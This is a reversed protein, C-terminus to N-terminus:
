IKMGEPGALSKEAKKALVELNALFEEQVQPPFKALLKEGLRQLEPNDIGTDITPEFELAVLDAIESPLEKELGSLVLPETTSGAATTEDQVRGSEVPTPVQIAAPVAKQAEDVVDAGHPYLLTPDPQAPPLESEIVELQETWQDAAQELQTSLSEQPLLVLSDTQVTVFDDFLLPDPTGPKCLVSDEAPGQPVLMEREPLLANAHHTEELPETASGATQKRMEAADLDTLANDEPKEAVAQRQQLQVAESRAEVTLAWVIPKGKVSRDRKSFFVRHEQRLIDRIFSKWGDGKREMMKEPYNEQFASLIQSTPLGGEASLLIQRIAAIWSQTDSRSRGRGTSIKPTTPAPIKKKTKAKPHRKWKLIVEDPLDKKDLWCPEEDTRVLYRDGGLARERRVVSYSLKEDPVEKSVSPATQITSQDDLRAALLRSKRQALVVAIERLSLTFRERGDAYETITGQVSCLFSSTSLTASSNAYVFVIPSAIGANLPALLLVKTQIHGNQLRKWKSCIRGLVFPASYKESPPLFAFVSGRPYVARDPNLLILFLHSRTQFWIGFTQKM